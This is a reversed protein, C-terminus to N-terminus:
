QHLEAKRPFGRDSALCRYMGERTLSIEQKGNVNAIAWTEESRRNVNALMLEVMRTDGHAGVIENSPDRLTIITKTHWM